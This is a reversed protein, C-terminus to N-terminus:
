VHNTPLLRYSRTQYGVIQETKCPTWAPIPICDSARIACYTSANSRYGPPRKLQTSAALSSPTLSRCKRRSLSRTCASPKIPLPLPSEPRRAGIGPDFEHHLLIPGAVSVERYLM